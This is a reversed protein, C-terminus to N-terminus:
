STPLFVWCQEMPFIGTRVRLDKRTDPKFDLLLYGYPNETAMSFAVSLYKKHGPFVQRGLTEIMSNDRLNQFLIIYQANRTITTAYQSNFYLNQTIFITSVREHRMKTFLKALRIDNRLELMMDDLILLTEKGDFEISEPFGEQLEVQEIESSTNIIERQLISYCFIIREFPQSFIERNLQILKLVFKTKGSGTQGSVIMTFPNKFKLLECCGVNTNNTM